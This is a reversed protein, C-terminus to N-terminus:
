TCDGQIGYLGHNCESALTQQIQKADSTSIKLVQGIGYRFANNDLYQQKICGVTWGRAGEFSYVYGGVILLTHGTGGVTIKGFWDLPPCTGTNYTLLEVEVCDSEASEVNPVVSTILSMLRQIYAAEKVTTRGCKLIRVIRLLLLRGAISRSAILKIKKDSLQKVIYYCVRDERFFSVDDLITEIDAFDSREPEMMMRALYIGLDCSTKEKLIKNNEDCVNIMERCLVYNLCLKEVNYESQRTQGTDTVSQVFYERLENENSKIENLYMEKKDYNFQVLLLILTLHFLQKMVKTLIVGFFSLDYDINNILTQISERLLAIDITSQQQQQKTQEIIDNLINSILLVDQCHEPSLLIKTIDAPNEISAVTTLYGSQLSFPRLKEEATLSYEEAVQIQSRILRNKTEEIDNFFYQEIMYIPPIFDKEYKQYSEHIHAILLKLHEIKDDKVNNGQEKIYSDFLIKVDDNTRKRAKANKILSYLQNFM